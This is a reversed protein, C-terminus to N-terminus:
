RRFFKKLDKLGDALDDLTPQQKQKPEPKVYHFGGEPERIAFELYVNDMGGEFSHERSALYCQGDIMKYLHSNDPYRGATRFGNEKLLAWYQDLEKDAEYHDPFSINASAFYGSCEAPDHDEIYLDTGGFAWRPYQPLKEDWQLLAQEMKEAAAQEEAIAAPLKAGCQACFKMGVTNQTGCAPCLAGQAVTLEPLKAGCSTCFKKEASVTEGCGPCVKVNKGVETAYNEMSRQLNGLAGELSSFTQRTEEVHPQAMEDLHQATKNVWETAKPEVAQRVANGLADGIGRSIGEQLARKLFSM